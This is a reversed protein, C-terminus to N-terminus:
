TYAKRSTAFFIFLKEVYSKIIKKLTEIFEKKVSIETIDKPHALECKIDEM